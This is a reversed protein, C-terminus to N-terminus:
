TSLKCHLRHAWNRVTQLLQQKQVLQQQKYLLGAAVM